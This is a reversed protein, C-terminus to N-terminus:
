NNLEDLLQLTTKRFIPHIFYPAIKALPELVFARNKMDKHPVVLNETQICDQNYYIIDLDLTRPGWHIKRERGLETEIQNLFTLLEQPHYLTKIEFVGNMFDEQAVNGYPKTIIFDSIAILQCHKDKELMQLAQRMTEEREGLNSGIAIFVQNWARKIKISVSEFLHAIPAEPKRIEFEIEQIRHNELLRIRVTQEAVTELLDYTNMTVLEVIRDCLLAYSVSQELDDTLGAFYTDMYFSANIYFNQGKEKEEDYVGHNAYINLEKIIIKDM